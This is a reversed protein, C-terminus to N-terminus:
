RGPPRVGVCRALKGSAMGWGAFWPRRSARGGRVRCLGGRAWFPFGASLASFRWRHGLAAPVAALGAGAGRAAPPPGPEAGGHAGRLAVAGPRRSSAALGGFCGSPQASLVKPVAPLLPGGLSRPDGEARGGRTRAPPAAGAGSDARAGRARRAGGRRRSLCGPSARGRRWRAAKIEM